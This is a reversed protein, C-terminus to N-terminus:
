SNYVEKKKFLKLKESIFDSNQINIDYEKAEFVRHIVFWLQKNKLSVFKVYMIQSAHEAIFVNKLFTEYGKQCPLNFKMKYLKMDSKSKIKTRNFSIDFNIIFHDGYEVILTTELEISENYQHTGKYKKPVLITTKGVFKKPNGNFLSFLFFVHQEDRSPLIESYFKLFEFKDMVNMEEGKDSKINSMYLLILFCDLKNRHLLELAIITIFHDARAPSRDEQINGETSISSTRAFPDEVMNISTGNLTGIIPKNDFSSIFDNTPNNIFIQTGNEVMHYDPQSPFKTCIQSEGEDFTSSYKILKNRHLINPYLDAIFTSKPLWSDLTRDNLMQQMMFYIKEKKKHIFKVLLIQGMHHVIFEEKLFGTYKEENPLCLECKYCTKEFHSMEFYVPSMSTQFNIIFYERFRVIFDSSPDILSNYQYVDNFVMPMMMATKGFLNITKMNKDYLVFVFIMDKSLKDPILHEPYNKLTEVQESVNSLKGEFDKKVYVRLMVVYSDLQKRHLLEIAEINLSLDQPGIPIVQQEEKDIIPASSGNLYFIDFNDILFYSPYTPDGSFKFPLIKELKDYTDFSVKNSEILPKSSDLHESVRTHANHNNKPTRIDNIRFIRIKEDSNHFSNVIKQNNRSYERSNQQPLYKMSINRNKLDLTKNTQYEEIIPINWDAIETFIARQSFDNEKTKEDLFSFVQPYLSDLCYNYEKNVEYDDTQDNNPISIEKEDKKPNKIQYEEPSQDSQSKFINMKPMQFTQTKMKETQEDVNYPLMEYKELKQHLVDFPDLSFAENFQFESSLWRDLDSSSSALAQIPHLDGQPSTLIQVEEYQDSSHSALAPIPYLDGEPTTSIRMEEYQDSSSSSLASIPHLDGEPTTSMQMEEYQKELHKRQYSIPENIIFKQQKESNTPTTEFSFNILHFLFYFDQM